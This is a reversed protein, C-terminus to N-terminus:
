FLNQTVLMILVSDPGPAGFLEFESYYGESRSLVLVLANTCVVGRGKVFYLSLIQMFVRKRCRETQELLRPQQDSNYLRTGNEPEPNKKDEIQSEFRLDSRCIREFPSM